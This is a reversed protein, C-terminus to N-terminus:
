LFIMLCLTFLDTHDESEDPSIGKQELIKEKEEIIMDWFDKM